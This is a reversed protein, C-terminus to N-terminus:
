LADKSGQSVEAVLGARHRQALLIQLEDAADLVQRLILGPRVLAPNGRCVTGEAGVVGLCPAQVSNSGKRVRTMAPNSNSSTQPCRRTNLDPSTSIGTARSRSMTADFAAAPLGFSRRKRAVWSSARRSSIFFSGRHGEDSGEGQ